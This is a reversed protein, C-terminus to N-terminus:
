LSLMEAVAEEPSCDDLYLDLAWGSDITEGGVLARVQDEWCKYQKEYETERFESKVFDVMMCSM